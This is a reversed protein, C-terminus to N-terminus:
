SERRLDEQRQQYVFDNIEDASEDQPWFDAVLTSLDNVASTHHIAAGANPDSMLIQSDIAHKNEKKGIDYADDLLESIAQILELQEPPSWAKVTDVVRQIKLAQTTM